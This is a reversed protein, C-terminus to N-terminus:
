SGPLQQQNIQNGIQQHSMLRQLLCGLTYEVAIGEVLMEKHRHSRYTGEADPEEWPCLGLERLSDEDHQEKLHAFEKLTIGLSLAPLANGMQHVDAGVHGM